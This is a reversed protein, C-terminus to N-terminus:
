KRVWKGSQQLFWTGGPAAKFIEKAYIQGVAAEAIGRKGAQSKYLARREANVRDVLSRVSAPAGHGRMMAYGDFREAVQGAARPADLPRGQAVADGAMVLAMTALAVLAVLFRRAGTSSSIRPRSM